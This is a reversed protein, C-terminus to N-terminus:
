GNKKGRKKKATKKKVVKPKSIDRRIAASFRNCQNVLEAILVETEGSYKLKTVYGKIQSAMSRIQEDMLSVDLEKKKESVKKKNRNNRLVRYIQADTAGKERLKDVRPDDWLLWDQLTSKSINMRRGLENISINLDNLLSKIIRAREEKLVDPKKCDVVYREKLITEISRKKM